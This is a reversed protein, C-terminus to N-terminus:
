EFPKFWVESLDAICDRENDKGLKKDCRPDIKKRGTKLFWIALKTIYNNSTGDLDQEPHKKPDKVGKFFLPFYGTVIINATPFGAATRNLLTTM